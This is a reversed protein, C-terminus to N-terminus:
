AAWEKALGAPDASDRLVRFHARCLPIEVSRGAIRVDGFDLAAAGCRSRKRPAGLTGLDGLRGVCKRTERQNQLLEVIGASDGRLCQPPQSTQLREERGNM